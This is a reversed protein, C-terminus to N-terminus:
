FFLLMLAVSSRTSAPARNFIDPTFDEGLAAYLSAQDNTSIGAAPIFQPVNIPVVANVQEMSMSMNLTTYEGDSLTTFSGTTTGSTGQLNEQQSYNFTGNFDMASMDGAAARNYIFQANTTYSSKTITSQTTVETHEQLVGGPSTNDYIVQGTYNDGGSSSNLETMKVGGGDFGSFSINTERVDGDKFFKFLITVAKQGTVANRYLASTKEGQINKFTLSMANREEVTLADLDRLVGDLGTVGYTESDILYQSVFFSKFSPDHSILTVMGYTVAVASEGTLTLTTATCNETEGAMTVSQTETAYNTELASAGVNQLFADIAAGWEDDNMKIKTTDSLVRSFREAAALTKFSAAVTPDIAHQIMPQEVNAKKILMSNGTFYVGGSQSVESGVQVSTVMSSDGSSADLTSEVSIAMSNSADATDVLSVSSKTYNSQTEDFQAGPDFLMSFQMSGISESKKVAELLAEKVGMAFVESQLMQPEDEIAGPDSTMGDPRVIGQKGCASLQTLVITISLIIIASRFFRNRTHM